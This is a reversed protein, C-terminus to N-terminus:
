RGVSRGVFRCAETRLHFSRSSAPSIGYAEGRLGYRGANGATIHNNGSHHAVAEFFCHKNGDHHAVAEFFCHRQLPKRCASSRRLLPVDQTPVPISPEWLASVCITVFHRGIQLTESAAFHGNIPSRPTGDPPSTFDDHLCNRCFSKRARNEPRPRQRIATLHTYKLAQMQSMFVAV